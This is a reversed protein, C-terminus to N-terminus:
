AFKRPAFRAMSVIRVHRKFENEAKLVKNRWNNFVAAAFRKNCSRL